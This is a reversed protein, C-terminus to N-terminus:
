NQLMEVFEQVLSVLESLPGSLGDVEISLFAEIHFKTVSLAPSNASLKTQCVGGGVVSKAASHFAPVFAM